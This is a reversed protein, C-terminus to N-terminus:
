ITLIWIWCVIAVILIPFISFSKDKKHKMRYSLQELSDEYRIRGIVRCVFLITFVIGLLWAITTISNIM